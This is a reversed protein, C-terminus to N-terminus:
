PPPSDEPRPQVDGSHRALAAAESYPFSKLLENVADDGEEFASMARLLRTAFWLLEAHNPDGTGVNRLRRVTQVALEKEGRAQQARALLLGTELGMREMPREWEIERIVREAADFEGEALFRRAREMREVRRVEYHVNDAGVVNGARWYAARAAELRKAFVAADGRYIELLRRDQGSPLLNEAVALLELARDLNGVVHLEMGGLHLAARGRLEADVGPRVLLESWVKRVTEYRRLEPIQWHFGLRYLVEASSADFHELKSLAVDGLRTLLERDELRDAWRLWDTLAGPSLMALISDPMQRILDAYTSEDFEARQRWDPQAAVSQTRHGARKGGQTVELSIRALQGGCFVHAVSVGERVVGDPFRWRYVSEEMPHPVKFRMGLLMADRVRVHGEATWQFSAAAEPCEVRVVEFRAVPEFATEPIVEFQEAGPIRWAAALSFASENQVHHYDIRHVGPQLDVWGHHQGHRGGDVGHWGPWEAVLDGNILLFSANDSITAFAHRGATGIRLWGRYHSSFDATPGHRHIGDFIRTVESRGLTPSAQRWHEEAAVWSDVSGDTRRRTELVVGARGEWAPASDGGQGAEDRRGAFRIIVERVDGDADFRLDLPSGERWWVVEHGLTRGEVTGVRIAREDPRLDPPWCRLVGVPSRVRDEETRRARIVVDARIWGGLHLGAVVVCWGKGNRFRIM